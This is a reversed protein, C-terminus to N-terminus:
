ACAELICQSVGNGPRYCGVVRFDTVCNLDGSVLVERSVTINHICGCSYLGRKGFLLFWTTKTNAKASTLALVKKANLVGPSM